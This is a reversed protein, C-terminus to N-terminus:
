NAQPTPENILQNYCRLFEEEAFEPSYPIVPLFYPEISTDFGNTGKSLLDRAETLLMRDDAEKVVDVWPGLPMLEPHLSKLIRQLIEDEYDDMQYPASISLLQKLPRPIDGIYAEAADHLLAPYRAWHPVYEMVHTSHQAVSYFKKTHGNFRSTNALSHAIDKIDFVNRSLEEFYFRGGTYTRIWSM